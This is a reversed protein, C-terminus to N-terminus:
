TQGSCTKTFHENKYMFPELPGNQSVKGGNGPAQFIFSWWSWGRTDMLPKLRGYFFDALAIAVSKAQANGAVNHQDCLGAILKHASYFGASGPHSYNANHLANDWPGTGVYGALSPDNKAIADQVKALSDVIYAGKARLATDHQSAAGFALASLLHGVWACGGGGGGGGCWGGYPVADGNPGAPDLGATRRFGILLRDADLWKLYATNLAEASEEFSAAGDGAAPLLRVESLPFARLLPSYQAQEAAAAAAVGLLPSYQAEEAAAAAAAAVGLLRLAMM